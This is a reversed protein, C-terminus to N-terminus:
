ESQGEKNTEQPVMWMWSDWHFLQSLPGNEGSRNDARKESFPTTKRLLELIEIGNILLIFMEARM